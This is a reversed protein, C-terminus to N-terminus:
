AAFVERLDAALQRHLEAKHSDLFFHGGEFSRVVPPLTTHERWGALAEDRGDEDGTGRYLYLPVALPPGAVARYDEAAIMDARLLPLLLEMLEDDDLVEQPTGALKGLGAIFQERPLRGIPPDSSPWGPAAHAAVFVAAPAPAGRRALERGLEFAVVGGLSYGFLAYRRQPDKALVTVLSEAASAVLRAVDDMAPQAMRSERGPPRAAVVEAIDGIGDGWGRFVNAGGGAFPFCFVRPRGPRPKQVHYWDSLAQL